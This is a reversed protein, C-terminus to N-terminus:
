ITAREFIQLSGTVQKAIGEAFNNKVGGGVLSAFFDKIGELQQSGYYQTGPKEAAFLLFLLIPFLYNRFKFFFDGIKVFIDKKM